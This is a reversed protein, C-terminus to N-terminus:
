MGNGKIMQEAQFDRKVKWSCIPLLAGTGGQATNGGHLQWVLQSLLPLPSGSYLAATRALMKSLGPVSCVTAPYPALKSCSRIKLM